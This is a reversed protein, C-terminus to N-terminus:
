IAVAATVSPFRAFLGDAECIVYFRSGIRGDGLDNPRTADMAFYCANKVVGEKSKRLYLTRARQLVVRAIRGDGEGIHDRLWAPVDSSQEAAFSGAALWAAMTVGLGGSTLFRMGSRM